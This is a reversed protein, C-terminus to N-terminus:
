RKASAMQRVTLDVRWERQCHSFAIAAVAKLAHRVVPRAIAAAAASQASAGAGERAAPQLQGIYPWSGECVNACLRAHACILADFTAVSVSRQYKAVSDGTVAEVVTTFPM